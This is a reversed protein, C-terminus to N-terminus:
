TPFTSPFRVVKLKRNLIAAGEKMLVSHFSLRVRNILWSVQKQTMLFDYQAVDEQEHAAKTSECVFGNHRHRNVAALSLVLSADQTESKFSSCGLHSTIRRESTWIGLDISPVM